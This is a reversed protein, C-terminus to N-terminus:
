YDFERKESTFLLLASKGEAMKLVMGVCCPFLARLLAGRINRIYKDPHSGFIPSRYVESFCSDLKKAMEPTMEVVEHGRDKIVITTGEYKKDFRKVLVIPGEKMDEGVKCDNVVDYESLFSDDSIKVFKGSHISDFMTTSLDLAGLPQFQAGEPIYHRKALIADNNLDTCVTKLFLDQMHKCCVLGSRECGDVKCM